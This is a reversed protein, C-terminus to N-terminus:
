VPVAGGHRRARPAAEVPPAEPPAIAPKPAPVPAPVPARAPAAQTAMEVAPPAEAASVLQPEAPDTEAEKDPKAPPDPLIRALMEAVDEAADLPGYGPAGGPTNWDWAYDAMEKFDRIFPDLSWARALAQARLGAPVRPHLFVSFDSEATLSELSPLEPLEPLEPPEPPAEPAPAAEAPPAPAAEPAAARKLRSWRALFKERASDDPAAM